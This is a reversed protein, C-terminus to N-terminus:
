KIAAARARQNAKYRRTAATTGSEGTRSVAGTGPIPRPLPSTIAPPIEHSIRLGYSKPGTCVGDGRGPSPRTASSLIAVSIRKLRLVAAIQQQRQYAEDQNEKWSTSAGSRRPKGHRAASGIAEDRIVKTRFGRGRIHRTGV